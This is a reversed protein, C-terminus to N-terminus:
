SPRNEDSVLPMEWILRPNKAQSSRGKDQQQREWKEKADQLIDRLRRGRLLMKPSGMSTNEPGYVLDYILFCKM